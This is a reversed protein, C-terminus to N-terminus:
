PKAEGGFIRDLDFNLGVCTQISDARPGYDSDVTMQIFPRLGVADLSKWGPKWTLYGDVKLRNNRRQLFFNSRGYGAELRSGSFRGNVAMLGLGLHHLDMVDSGSGAVSVFGFQANVYARAPHDGAARLTAFEWRLGAFAELSSANRLMYLFGEGPKLSGPKFTDKCVPASPNAACDVDASRLGHITKGYVWLQHSRPAAPDGYLRYAFDVGAVAREKLKGSVDPNIYRNLDSAAFSDISLGAFASAEFDGREDFPKQGPKEAALAM